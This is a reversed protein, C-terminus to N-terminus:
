KCLIDAGMIQAYFLLWSITAWMKVIIENVAVGIEGEVERWFSSIHKCKSRDLKGAEACSNYITLLVNEKGIREAPM